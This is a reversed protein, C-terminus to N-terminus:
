AELTADLTIDARFLKSVPCGTKAAQVAQDFDSQSAGPVKADLTLHVATIAFGDPKQELTV